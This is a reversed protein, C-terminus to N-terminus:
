TYSSMDDLMERRMLCSVKNLVHDQLFLGGGTPVCTATSHRGASRAHQGPM